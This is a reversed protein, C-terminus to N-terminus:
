DLRLSVGLGVGASWRPVSYVLREPNFIFSDHRTLLRAAVFAEVSLRQWVPIELRVLAGGAVWPMHRTHVNEAAGGGSARLSGADLTACPLVRLRILLQLRVPCGSLRGAILQFTAAGDSTQQVAATSVLAELRASPSWPGGRPWNIELGALLAPPPTPAVASELAPGAALALGWREAPRAAVDSVARARSPPPASAVVPAPAPVPSPATSVLPPAAPQETAWLRKAPVAELVMAAIVAMSSAADACSSDNFDRRSSGEPLDVWLTNQGDDRLEVRFRLAAPGSAVYSAGATRDQIAATFADRDPCGPAAQYELAFARAPEESSLQAHSPSAMLWGVSLASVFAEARLGRRGTMARGYWVGGGGLEAWM